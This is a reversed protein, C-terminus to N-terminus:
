QRTQLFIQHLALFCSLQESALESVFNGLVQMRWQEFGVYLEDARYRFGPAVRLLFDPPAALLELSHKLRNFVAARDGIFLEMTHGGVPSQGRYKILSKQLSHQEM